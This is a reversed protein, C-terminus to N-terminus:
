LTGGQMAVERIPQSREYAARARDFCEEAARSNGAQTFEEGLKNLLLIAEDMVRIADYLREEASGSIASLLTSPSLGHGTHCRFRMVSGERIMTLVGNCEPCTFPSLEGFPMVNEELANQGAAIRLENHTKQDEEPPLAPAAPAHERVLRGLLEGIEGAPLRYDAETHELANLPMSRIMADAPEQVIATGGRLKITYLGATGDDLAGTLVVGVVRPGYIYAASRFLPDVAPRFRNEKPGKTIRIYGNELLMHHDNPAVYIRGPEIRDGDAPHVAELPGARSLVAPLISKIGPSLHWVVFLSAPLDAPLRSVLKQLAEMGGASAGIVVIDKRPAVPM